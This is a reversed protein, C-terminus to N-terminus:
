GFAHHSCQLIDDPPECARKVLPPRDREEVAEWWQLDATTCAPEWFRSTGAQHVDATGGRM